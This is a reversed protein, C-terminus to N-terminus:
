TSLIVRLIEQNFVKAYGGARFLLPDTCGCAIIRRPLNAVLHEESQAIGPTSPGFGNTQCIYLQGFRVALSAARLGAADVDEETYLGDVEGTSELYAEAFFAQLPLIEPPRRRYLHLWYVTEGDGQPSHDPYRRRLFESGLDYDVGLITGLEGLFARRAEPPKQIRVVEFMAFKPKPYRAKLEAVKSFCEKAKAPKRLSEFCEGLTEWAEIFDPALETARQYSHLVDSQSYGRSRQKLSRYFGSKCFAIVKGRMLWLKASHPFDRVAAEAFQLPEEGLPWEATAKALADEYEDETM